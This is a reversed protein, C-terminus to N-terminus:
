LIESRWFVIGRFCCLVSSVLVWRAIWLLDHYLAYLSRTQRPLRSGGLKSGRRSSNNNMTGAINCTAAGALWYPPILPYCAFLTPFWFHCFCLTCSSFSVALSWSSSGDIFTGCNVWAFTVL